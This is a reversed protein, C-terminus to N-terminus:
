YGEAQWSISYNGAQAFNFGNTTASGVCLSSTVVVTSSTSAVVNLTATPFAVPYNIFGSTGPSTFTGWQRIVPAGAGSASPTSQYGNIAKLAAFSASYNLVASGSADYIGAGAATSSCTIFVSEGSRISFSTTTSSSIQLTDTAGQRTVTVIGAGVNQILMSAGVRPAASTLPLTLTMTTAPSLRIEKGFASSTLTLDSSAATVGGSVFGNTNVWATTAYAQSNDNQAPTPGGRGGAAAFVNTGDGYVFVPLGAPLALAAGGPAQVSLSFAGSTNNVMLWTRQWAPLVITQNSTLTGSYVIINRGAQAPTLTLSGGTLSSIAGTGYTSLPVWNAASGDTADPNTTNNDATCLWTGAYDSRPLMAGKAYGNINSDTAFTSDYPFGNGQLMWWAARAIQNMAGNFDEGQPPVGSAEPPLMTRPPFGLSQSARTTDATTVPIEVKSADNQAFPVLYKTPISSSQM